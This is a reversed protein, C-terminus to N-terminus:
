ICPDRGLLGLRLTKGTGEDGSSTNYTTDARSFLTVMPPMKCGSLLSTRYGLPGIPMPVYHFIALVAFSSFSVFFGYITLYVFTPVEVKFALLNVNFYFFFVAWTALFPICAVIFYSWDVKRFENLNGFGSDRNCGSVRFRAIEM